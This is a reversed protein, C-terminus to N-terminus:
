TVAVVAVVHRGILFSLVIGSIRAVSESAIKSAHLVIGFHVEDVADRISTQIKHVPPRTRAVRSGIFFLWCFRAEYLLGYGIYNV